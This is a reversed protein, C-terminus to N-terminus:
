LTIDVMSTFVIVIYINSPIMKTSQLTNRNPLSPLTDSTFQYSFTLITIPRVATCRVLGEDAIMKSFPFFAVSLIETRRWWIGM